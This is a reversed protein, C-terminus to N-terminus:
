AAIELVVGAEFNIVAGGVYSSTTIRKADNPRLYPDILVRLGSTKDVITYFEKMDALIIPTDGVETGIPMADIMVVKHGFMSFGQYGKAGTFHETFVPRGDPYTIGSLEGMLKRNIIFVAKKVRQM